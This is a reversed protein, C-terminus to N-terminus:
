GGALADQAIRAYIQALADLDPVAVAEDRKHM